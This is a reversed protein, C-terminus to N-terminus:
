NSFQRAIGLAELHASNRIDLSNPEGALNMIGSPLTCSNLNMLWEPKLTLVYEYLFGWFKQIAAIHDGDSDDLYKRSWGQPPFEDKEDILWDFFRRAEEDKETANRYGYIYSCLHDVRVDLLRPSEVPLGIWMAWYRPEELSIRYLHELLTM